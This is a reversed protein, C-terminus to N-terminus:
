NILINTIMLFNPVLTTMIYIFLVKDGCYYGEIIENFLDKLNLVNANIALYIFLGYFLLAWITM